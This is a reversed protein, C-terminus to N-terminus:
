SKRASWLKGKSFIQVHERVFCHVISYASVLFRKLTNVINVMGNKKAMDLPTMKDSSVQWLVEKNKPIHQALNEAMGDLRYRIAFQLLNDHTEHGGTPM